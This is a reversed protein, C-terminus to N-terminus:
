AAVGGSTLERLDSQEPENIFIMGVRTPEGSTLARLNSQEPENIFIVGVRAPEGSTLECLPLMEPTNERTGRDSKHFGKNM